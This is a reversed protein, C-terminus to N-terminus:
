EKSKDEPKEPLAPPRPPAKPAKPKESLTGEPVVPAPPQPPQPPQQRNQLAGQEQPMQPSVPQIPQGQPADAQAPQPPPVATGDGGQSPLAVPQPPQRTEPSPAIPTAEAEAAQAGEIDQAPQTVPTQATKGMGPAKPAAPAPGSPGPGKIAAGKIEPAKDLVPGRPGSPESPSLKGADKLGEVYAPDSITKEISDRLGKFADDESAIEHLKNMSLVDGRRKSKIVKKGLGEIAGWSVVHLENNFGKRAAEEPSLGAEMAERYAEGAKQLASACWGIVHGDTLADNQKNAYELFPLDSNAHIGQAIVDEFAKVVAKRHLSENYSEDAFPSYESKQDFISSPKIGTLDAVLHGTSRVQTDISTYIAASLIEEPDHGRWAMEQAPDSFAIWNKLTDADFTQGVEDALKFAMPIIRKQPLSKNRIQGFAFKCSEVGLAYPYREPSHLSRRELADVGRSKAIKTIAGVDGAFASVIAAFIDAKLNALGVDLINRRRVIVEKSAGTRNHPDAHFKYADIAHWAQHYAHQKVASISEFQDLNLTCITIVSDQTALGFFIHQRAVATGLVTSEHSKVQKRLIHKATDAAPHARINNLSKAIAESRQGERHVVYHVLLNKYVTKIEKTIGICARNLNDVQLNSM